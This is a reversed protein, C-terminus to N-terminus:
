EIRVNLTGWDDFDARCDGPAAKVMNGLAGTLLIQSRELRWGEDLLKNVLWLAAVWQDGMSDRGQAENLLQGDCALKAHLLNPNRADSSVFEGVMFHAAAVNSAVIDLANMRDTNAYNLNPMEIAPAVGDLHAKLEDVTDLKRHIPKGIRMAVEIELHLGPFEALTVSSNTSLPAFTLVGAIADQSGFRARAAPSTLGAKFGAPSRTGLERRVVTHQVRYAREITLTEDVVHALPISSNKQRANEIAQVLHDNTTCGLLAFYATFITTKRHRWFIM